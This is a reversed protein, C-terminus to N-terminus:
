SKPSGFWRHPMSNFLRSSISQLLSMRFHPNSGGRLRTEYVLRHMLAVHQNLSTVCITATFCCALNSVKLHTCSVMESYHGLNQVGNCCTISIISIIIIICCTAFSQASLSSDLGMDPPLRISTYGVKPEGDCICHMHTCSFHSITKFHPNSGM